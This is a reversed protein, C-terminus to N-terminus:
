NILEVTIPLSKAGEIGESVTSIQFHYSGAAVDALTLSAATSEVEIIITSGDDFTQYLNLRDIINLASGDEKETPLEWSLFIGDLQVEEILSQRRIEFRDPPIIDCNSNKNIVAELAKDYRNHQSIKVGDCVPVWYGKMTITINGAVLVGSFVLLTFALLLNFSQTSKM